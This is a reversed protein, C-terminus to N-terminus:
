MAPDPMMGAPPPGDTSAEHSPASSASVSRAAQGRGSPSSGREGTRDRPEWPTRGVQNAFSVAAKEMQDVIGRAKRSLYAHLLLSPIAVILGFETTILAESIGGSLMRVDGSGFVTILKFTNIIGTVTGLLGLLPASAACIAIFPLFRQLSLRTTLVTEYMVEEMLERPEEIHEVGQLLMHGTPGGVARACRVAAERDRQAVAKLLKRIRKQSPKRVFLMRIWRSLGVLFAAGALAFIPVMVPGGKLIHEWLTEETAEIRHANGLTPDVPLLGTGSAVLQEAALRHAQDSFAIVSPELSGPRQEVSGIWGGDAARFVAVPGMVLFTGRVMLGDPDVAMGDFRSGGIGEALRDISALLVQAQAELVTGRDLESNEMALRASRLVEQYRRLESIHLRAEFNRGYEALLGSLYAAEEQRARLESQLTSLDLTRADLSRSTQQFEQRLDALETELQRLERSLPLREDGIRARLAALEQVSEELQRRATEAATDFATPDPANQRASLDAAILLLGSLAIIAIYRAM